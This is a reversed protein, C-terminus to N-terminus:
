PRASRVMLTLGAVLLVVFFPVLIILHSWDDLVVVGTPYTCGEVAICETIHGEADIGAPVECPACISSPGHM